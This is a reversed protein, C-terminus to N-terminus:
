ITAALAQMVNDRETACRLEKLLKDSIPTHKLVDVSHVQATTSTPTLAAQSLTNALVLKRGELYQFKIDYRRIRLIMFQLPKPLQSFHVIISESIDFSLFTSM